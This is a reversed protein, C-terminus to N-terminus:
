HRAGVNNKRMREIKKTFFIPTKGTQFGGRTTLVVSKGDEKFKFKVSAPDYSEREAAKRLGLKGAYWPAVSELNRVLIHTDNSVSFEARTWPLYWRGRPADMIEFRYRRTLWIAADYFTWMGSGFVLRAVKHGDSVELFFYGVLFIGYAWVLWSIWPQFSKKVTNVAIRLAILAMWPSLGILWFWVPHHPLSLAARSEIGLYCLSADFSLPTQSIPAEGSRESASRELRFSLKQPHVRKRTNVRLNSGYYRRCWSQHL